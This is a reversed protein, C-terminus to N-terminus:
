AAARARHPDIDVISKITIRGGSGTLAPLHRARGIGGAGVLVAGYQPTM